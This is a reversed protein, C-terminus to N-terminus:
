REEGLPTHDIGHECHRSQARRLKQLEEIEGKRYILYIGTGIVPTKASGGCILLADTADYGNQCNIIGLIFEVVFLVFVSNTFLVSSHWVMHFECSITRGNLKLPIFSFEDYLLDSEVYKTGTPLATFIMLSRGASLTPGSETLASKWAILTDYTLMDLIDVHIIAIRGEKIQTLNQIQILLELALSPTAFILLADLNDQILFLSKTINADAHLRINSFNLNLCDQLITVSLSSMKLLQANNFAVSKRPSPVKNFRPLTDLMSHGSVSCCNSPLNSPSHRRRSSQYTEMLPPPESLAKHFGKCSAIWYSTTKIGGEFELPRRYETHYGFSGFLKWFKSQKNISAFEFHNEILKSSSLCYTSVNMQRVNSCNDVKLGVRNM